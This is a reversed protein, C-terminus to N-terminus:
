SLGPATHVLPRRRSRVSAPPATVLRLALIQTEGDAATTLHRFRQQLEALQGAFEPSLGHLDAGDHAYLFAPSVPQVALGHHQATLWVAEAAAGGHAYGTLSPDSGIIVALSSSNVIRDRTDAGLRSGAGWSALLEMVETRRLIDLTAFDAPSLELSRVDIGTDPSEDGPWRLESTMERHLQTTLYRIRDAGSLVEGAADLDTRDTLLVLRAGERHAATSLAEAITDTLPTPTGRHRNTERRELLPYLAALEPDADAGGLDIVATLPSATQHEALHVDGLVGRAAAAVRANFTAAGVAVASGRLNVDMLTTREPTLHITVTAAGTEIRWPQANGGSPAQNAALAVAHVADRAHAPGPEDAEAPAAPTNRPDVLEEMFTSMDVRVRGSPLREGLGIRRVAEAVASAGILVDGALQPWTALTQGVEVLSAAARPSLSAGEIIRLVHPVKDKNDLGALTAADLGGLLGHFVPRDPESDFREVDVLGRDSTAMVVPLRHRRAAERVLAKVDLSDCEEVVVDLGELFGDISDATVGRDHVRVAVYPDIEAVRRAAVTAKNVGLDFVTAPVRNLNSLELEDFDALRLEGCLGQMALTHAIAHGVSLGIIGIRLSSLHQQEAITILDRNRDTRTRLYSRPGLVSVLTRRWPYYAWRRPEDVFELGPTPLLEALTRAQEAVTDVVTVTPDSRLFDILAGDDPLTPDFVVASNADRHREHFGAADTGHTASPESTM